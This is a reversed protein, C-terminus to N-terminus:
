LLADIFNYINHLHLLTEFIIPERGFSNKWTAVEWIHLKGLLLKELDPQARMTALLTESLM